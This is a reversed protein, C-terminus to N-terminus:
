PFAQSAHPSGFTTRMGGVQTVDKIGVPLGYLPGRPEGAEDRRELERAEDLATESLTVVANFEPNRREIVELSAEILATPTLSGADMRRRLEAAPLRTLDAM